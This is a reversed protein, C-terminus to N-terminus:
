VNQKDVSCNYCYCWARNQLQSFHDKRKSNSSIGSQIPHFCCLLWGSLNDDILTLIWHRRWEVERCLLLGIRWRYKNQYKVQCHTRHLLVGCMNKWMSSHAWCHDWRYDWWGSGLKRLPTLATQLICYVFLLAGSLNPDLRVHCPVPVNAGSRDLTQGHM